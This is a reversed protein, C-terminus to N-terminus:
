LRKTRALYAKTGTKYAEGAWEDRTRKLVLPDDAATSKKVKAGSHMRDWIARARYHNYLRMFEAVYINTLLKNNRIELINEDNSHESANSFNPSGSYITPHATDGDIVIFKHHIHVAIPPGKGGSYKSVNITSLEPLFGAPANAQTFRDYKVTDPNAQSRHFITVAIPSFKKPKGEKTLADTDEISNLLGYILKDKSDGIAFIANMLLADSATFMCFLVSSTAKSVADTVTDLFERKNTPEPPFFVRLDTGAIDTVNVWGALPKIDATPTDAALLNARALYLAALQPSHIVHLLNAQVTQAEPTFNASGMLVSKAKGAHHSVIFKDHMLASIRTRAHRSIQPNEPLAKLGEVSTQDSPKDFYTISGSGKFAQFAPLIWRRDNLHYIACDFDDTEDLLNPIADQLGNALWDMQTELKAGKAVLQAFSQASVVARNFYTAIKGKLVQPVTVDASGAQQSLLHLDGPGTGLVPTVTYRFKRGRDSPKLGGDWWNFKQIPAQDSGKPRSNRTIPVFDLKNFLYQPKGNAAFGPDRQIAFGLFDPHSRGAAWDFALLTCGPSAYAKVTTAM